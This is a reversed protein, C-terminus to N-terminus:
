ATRAVFHGYCCSHFFWWKSCDAATRAGCMWAETFHPADFSISALIRCPMPHSGRISVRAVKLTLRGFTVNKFPEVRLDTALKALQLGLVHNNSAMNGCFSGPIGFHSKMISKNWFLRRNLKARSYTYLVCVTLSLALHGLFHELNFWLPV